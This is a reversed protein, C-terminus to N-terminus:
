KLRLDLIYVKDYPTKQILRGSKKDYRVSEPIMDKAKQPAQKAINEFNERILKIFEKIFIIAGREETDNPPEYLGIISILLRTLPPYHLKELNEKVKKFLHYNLRKQIEKIAKTELGSSVPYIEIWLSRAIIEISESHAMSLKVYFGYLGNAIVGYISLDKFKDYDELNVEYHPILNEFKNIIEISKELGIGIEMINNLSINNYTEDNKINGLKLSETLTIEACVDYASFIASPFGFNWGSCSFYAELAVNISQVYKKVQWPELRDEKWYNWAQLPRFFSNILEYNGFVTNTFSKLHGLGFFDEERHLISSKNSFAQHILQKVFAYGGSEYLKLENIKQFFPIVTEPVHRVLIQCFKEDSLIDLLNLSYITYEPVINKETINFRNYKKCADLIEPISDLIEVALEKLDGDDGKAILITANNVFQKYNRKNFKAKNNFTWLFGVSVLLFLLGAMIEWFVPYGLLPLANGPIFPLIAAIFVCSIAGFFLIYATQQGFKSVSLRFKIIPRLLQTFVLLIAIAAIGEGISFYIRSPSSPDYSCKGLFELGLCPFDNM